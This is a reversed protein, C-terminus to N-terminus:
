VSLAKVTSSPLEAEALARSFRSYAGRDSARRGRATDGEDQADLKKVM